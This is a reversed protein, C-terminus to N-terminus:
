HAECNISPMHRLSFYNWLCDSIIGFIYINYLYTYGIGYKVTLMRGGRM